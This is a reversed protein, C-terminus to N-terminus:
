EHSVELPTILELHKMYGNKMNTKNVSEMRNLNAIHRLNWSIIADMELCTAVAVHRSDLDAKAPLVKLETYLNALKICEKTVALEKPNYREILKFLSLSKESNAEEFEQM